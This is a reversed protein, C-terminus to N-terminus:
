WLTKVGYQQMEPDCTLLVLDEALAQAVLLRDFPDKHQMTTMSAVGYTHELAVLLPHFNYQAMQTNVFSSIPQTLFLRGKAVKISMEWTTASSLFIENASDKIIARAAASLSSDNNAWWIFAHTDLLARV